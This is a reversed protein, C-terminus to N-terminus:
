ASQQLSQIFSSADSVSLNEVSSNFMEKSMNKLEDDSMNRRRSLNLIARYQADSIKSKGSGNGNAAPKSKTNTRPKTKKKIDVLNNKGKGSGIVDDLDGLEDLCVLGANTFIRLARGLSRSAAIRLLHKSVRSNTNAPSADGVESFVEQDKSVVVCKCVAFNENDSSPLQVIDVEIKSLGRKHGLDILGALQIFKNGDIETIFREDLTTQKTKEKPM